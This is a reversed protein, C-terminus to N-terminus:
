MICVVMMDVWTNKKMHIETSTQLKCLASDRFASSKKLAWVHGRWGSAM